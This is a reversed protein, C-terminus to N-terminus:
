FILCLLIAPYVPYPLLYNKITSVTAYSTRNRLLTFVPYLLIHLIAPYVPYLFFIFFFDPHMHARTQKGGEEDQMDQM